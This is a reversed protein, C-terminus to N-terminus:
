TEKRFTIPELKDPVIDTWKQKLLVNNLRQGIDVGRIGYLWSVFQKLTMEQESSIVPELMPRGEWSHKWDDVRCIVIKSWAEDHEVVVYPVGARKALTWQAEMSSIGSQKSRWNSNSLKAEWLLLLEVENGNYKYELFDIDTASLSGYDRRNVHFTMDRRHTIEKRV